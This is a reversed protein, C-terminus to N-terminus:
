DHTKDPLQLRDRMSQFVLVPNLKREQMLSVLEPMISVIETPLGDLLRMKDFLIGLVTGLQSYGADARKEPMVKLIARMEADFLTKLDAKKEQVLDSPPPNQERLVWSRLTVHSIDLETATRMLAGKQQPYGASITAAVAVARFEDTFRRRTM